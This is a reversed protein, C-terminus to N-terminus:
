TVGRHRQKHLSRWVITLYDSKRLRPRAFPTASHACLLELVRMGGEIILRIELGFRGNLRAGLRAGEHMMTLTRARQLALLQVLKSSHRANALDSESIGFRLLEDQPLYIRDNECADQQLDQLFNILQLASCIKDSLLLNREDAASHLHLLL